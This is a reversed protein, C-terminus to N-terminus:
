LSACCSHTSACMRYARTIFPGGLLRWAPVLLESAPRATLLGVKSLAPAASGLEGAAHRWAHM